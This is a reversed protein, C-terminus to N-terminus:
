SNQKHKAGKFVVQLEVKEFFSSNQEKTGPSLSKMPSKADKTTSPLVLISLHYSDNIIQSNDIPRLPTQDVLQDDLPRRNELTKKTSRM